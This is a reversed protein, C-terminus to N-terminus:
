SAPRLDRRRALEDVPVPRPTLLETILARQEDTIPPISDVVAQVYAQEAADVPPDVDLHSASGVNM